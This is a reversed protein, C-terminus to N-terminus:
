LFLLKIFFIFVSIFAVVLAVIRTVEDIRKQRRLAIEKKERNRFETSDM